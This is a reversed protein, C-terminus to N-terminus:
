GFAFMVGEKFDGTQILCKLVECKSFRAFTFFTKEIKNMIRQAYQINM